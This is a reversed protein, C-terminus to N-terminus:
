EGAQALSSVLEEYDRNRSSPLHLRLFNLIETYYRKEQGTGYYSHGSETLEVFRVSKGAKEMAETMEESQDIPVVTDNEGHILLLPAIAQDVLNIPSIAEIAEKDKRPDGIQDVWYQYAESDRGEEKREYDLMERLDSPGAISIVCRYLDPTHTLAVQAAYGGYSAGMICANGADVLGADILAQYGDDLDTQMAKGWQRYGSKAFDEGYGSSGRFNPQFVQYGYAALLQVDFDFTLVDRQEPGGHPLMVLPPNEGEALNAPRTLYGTINLNDRASYNIVQTEALEKDKLSLFISAVPRVEASELNFMHLTGPDKPGFTRILWTNGDISTSAPLVSITEGFYAQLGNLNAQIRSNQFDHTIRDRYYYVGLYEGTERNFFANEVDFNPDTKITELFRDEEFDYLYIGTTKADEPRAAVYYTTETPGPFLPKFETAADRQPNDKNLRITRVKKWKIDGNERDERAYIYVTTGRRNTNFRFAPEGNKDVYWAFTRSTGLAIRDYEGTTVNVKFLDLDSGLQAAMLIHDPDNTLFDVVNANFFSEQFDRKDSLLAISNAGNRDMAILREFPVVYGSYNDDYVEERSLVKNRKKLDTYGRVKVLMRDDTVWETWQPFFGGLNMYAPKAEPDDMDVVMFVSIEGDRRIGAIYRGTPSLEPGYFNSSGLFDDMDPLPLSPPPESTQASAVSFASCALMVAMLIQRM